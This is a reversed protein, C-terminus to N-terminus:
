NLAEEPGCDVWRAGGWWIGPSNPSLEPQSPMESLAGSPKISHPEIERDEECVEWNTLNWHDTRESWGEGGRWGGFPSCHKIGSKRIYKDGLAVSRKKVAINEIGLCHVCQCM